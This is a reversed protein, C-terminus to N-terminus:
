HFGMPFEVCIQFVLLLQRKIHGGTSPSSFGLGLLTARFLAVVEVFRFTTVTCTGLPLNTTVGAVSIM